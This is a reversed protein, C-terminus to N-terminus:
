NGVKFGTLEFSWYPQDPANELTIFETDPVKYIPNYGGIILEANATFEWNSFATSLFLSFTNSEIIENDYMNKVLNAPWNWKSFPAM